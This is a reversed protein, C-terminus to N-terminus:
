KSSLLVKTASNRTMVMDTYKTKNEYIVLGISSNSKILKRAREEVDHKSEGLLVIDDAYATLFLIIIFYTYWSQM